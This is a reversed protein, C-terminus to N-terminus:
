FPVNWPESPPFPPPPNRWDEPDCIGVACARCVAGRAEGTVCLELIDKCAHCPPIAPVIIDARSVGKHRGPYTRPGPLSADATFGPMNM